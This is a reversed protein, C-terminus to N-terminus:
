EVAIAPLDVGYVPHEFFNRVRATDLSYRFTAAHAGGALVAAATLTGLSLALRGPM